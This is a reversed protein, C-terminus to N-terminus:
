VLQFGQKANQEELEKLLEDYVNLDNPMPGGDMVQSIVVQKQQLIQCMREEVTDAAILYYIFATKKQGIRHIRDEAQTMHGPVPSMEVVGVTSAATLTLGFYAAKNGIFLRTDKDKQFQEVARQRARGTVTGDVTVSKANCWKQLVRIAESHVCFLVLKEDTTELFNNVWDVVGRFKLRACLRLLYGVRTLGAAKISRKYRDPYNKRLWVAFNDKAENYERYDSLELPIIRRVKDPLDDLVDKKLRRIMGRQTLEQHLQPLNSAGSTDWGYWRYRPNCYLQAFSWFSKYENPWLLRLLNFLDEPRNTLPTGTIALFREANRILETAAQTRKTKSNSLTHAEDAIITRIGLKLLYDKWYHLIDYNIILLKPTRTFRSIEPPTQSECVSPRLSIHTVAEHEWNFKLSAPCIVLAPFWDPNRYLALLSILTKGLGMESALLGNGNLEELRIVDQKQYQYPETNLKM